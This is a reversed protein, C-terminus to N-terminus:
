KILLGGWEVLTFGNREIKTLKQATFPIPKELGKADLFVRIITDPKPSVELPALVNMEETTLWTLKVYPTKPLHDQWFDVFDAIEKSNLGQNALDKKITTILEKQTVVKGINGEDYYAPFFVSLKIDRNLM